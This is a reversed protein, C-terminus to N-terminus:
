VPNNNNTPIIIIIIIIIIILWEDMMHRDAKINVRREMAEKM